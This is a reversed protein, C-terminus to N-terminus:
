LRKRNPDLDHVLARAKPGGGDMQAVVPPRQQRRIWGDILSFSPEHGVSQPRSLTHRNWDLKQCRRHGAGVTELIVEHMLADRPKRVFSCACATNWDLDNRCLELTVRRSALSPKM